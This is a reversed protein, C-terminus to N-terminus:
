LREDDKHCYSPKTFHFLIYWCHLAVTFSHEWINVEPWLLLLIGEAWWRDIAQDIIRQRHTLHQRLKDDDTM